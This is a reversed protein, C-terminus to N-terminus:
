LGRLEVESKFSSVQVGMMTMVLESAIKEFVSLPRKEAEAKVLLEQISKRGPL